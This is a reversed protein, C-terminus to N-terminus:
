LPNAFFFQDSYIGLDIVNGRFKGWDIKSRELEILAWDETVRLGSDGVAVADIAPSYIVEGIVRNDVKIWDKKIKDSLINLKTVWAESTKKFLYFKLRGLWLLIEFLGCNRPCKLKRECASISYEQKEINSAISGLVAKFTKEGPLIIRQPTDKGIAYISKVDNRPLVVHRATLIYIKETNAGNAGTSLKFYVGGTGEIDPSSQAAIPLGLAPTLPRCVEAIPGDSVAYDLLKPGALLNFLSERFAVEVEIDPTIHFEDLIKQCGKAAVQADSYSLSQPKVGIWLVIPGPPQDPEAFRVVDITTWQVGLSDLHKYIQTGMNDWVESIRENFVPRLEKPVLYTEPGVLMPPPDGTRYVLVPNSPLGYYYTNKYFDSHRLDTSTSSTSKDNSDKVESHAIFSTPNNSEGERDALEDSDSAVRNNLDERVIHKYIRSVFYFLVHRFALHVSAYKIRAQTHTDVPVPTM